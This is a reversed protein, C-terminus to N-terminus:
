LTNKPKRRSRYKRKSKATSRWWKNINSHILGVEGSLWMQSSFDSSSPVGSFVWGQATAEYGGCFWLQPKQAM